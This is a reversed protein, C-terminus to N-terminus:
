SAEPAAADMGLLRRFAATPILIRRGIRISPIEGREVAQYTGNRSLRVFPIIEDVTLVPKEAPDPLAGSPIVELDAFIASESPDPSAGPPATSSATM